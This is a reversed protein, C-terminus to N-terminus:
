IDSKDIGCAECVDLEPINILTCTSCIWRQTTRDSSHLLNLNIDDIVLNDDKCVKVNETTNSVTNSNSNKINNNSNSNNSNNDKTNFDKTNNNALPPQTTGGGIMLSFLRSQVEQQM